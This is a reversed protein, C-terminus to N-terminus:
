IAFRFSTTTHDFTATNYSRESFLVQDAKDVLIVTSCRSGYGEMKIFMSSLAREQALPVGTSPLLSDEATQDDYLAGLVKEPDIVADHIIPKIVEKGRTVKPWATELLHNSLGYFGPALKEVSPRYNSYYWVDNKYGVILNFGNYTKGVKSVRELYQEPSDNGILFDTVLHGRSPANSKINAPDRYNTVMAIRGSRTMAMWTGGAVLDRGGLIGPNDDWFQAAATKRNYFEDRNGAIILKYNPHNDISLFLLCM